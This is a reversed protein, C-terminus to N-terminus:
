QQADSVRIIPLGTELSRAIAMNGYVQNTMKTFMGTEASIVIIFDVHELDERPISFSVEYCLLVLFRKGNPLELINRAEPLISAVKFPELGGEIVPVLRKKNTIQHNAGTKLVASNIFRYDELDKYRTMGFLLPKEISRVQELAEDISFTTTVANEPWVILDVDTHQKSRELLGQLVTPAVDPHWKAGSPPNHSVVGINIPMQKLELPMGILYGAVLVGISPYFSKKVALPLVIVYALAISTLMLSGLSALAGFPTHLGVLGLPVGVMGFESAVREAGTVLLPWITWGFRWCLVMNPVGHFLLGLAATGFIALCLEGFSSTGPFFWTSSACMYGAGFFALGFLSRKQLFLLSVSFLVATILPAGFLFSIGAVAGLLFGTMSPSKALLSAIQSKISPLSM